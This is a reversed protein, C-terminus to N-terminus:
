SSSSSLFSFSSSLVLLALDFLVFLSIQSLLAMREFRNLPGSSHGTVVAYAYLFSPCCLGNLSGSDDHIALVFPKNEANRGM